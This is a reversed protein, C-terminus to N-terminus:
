REIVRWVIARRERFDELSREAIGAIRPEVAVCLTSRIADSDILLYCKRHLAARLHM